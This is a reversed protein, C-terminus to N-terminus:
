RVLHRGLKLLVLGKLQASVLIDELREIGILKAAFDVLQHPQARRGSSRRLFYGVQEGRFDGDLRIIDDVLGVDGGRGRDCGSREVTARHHFHLCLCAVRGCESGPQVRDEVLFGLCSKIGELNVLLRRYARRRRFQGAREARLGVGPIFLRRRERRRCTKCCIQKRRGGFRGLSCRCRGHTHHRSHHGGDFRRHVQWKRRLRLEVDRGAHQTLRAILCTRRGLRVRHVGCRHLGKSHAVGGLPQQGFQLFADM